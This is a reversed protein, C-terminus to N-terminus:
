RVPIKEFALGNHEEPIWLNPDVDPPVFEYYRRTWPDYQPPTKATFVEESALKQDVLFAVQFSEKIYYSENGPRAFKGRCREGVTTDAIVYPRCEIFINGMIASEYFMLGFTFIMLTTLCTGLIQTFM